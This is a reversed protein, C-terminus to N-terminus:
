PPGSYSVSVNKPVIHPTPSRFSSARAAASALLYPISVIEQPAVMAHAISALDRPNSSSWPRPRAQPSPRATMRAMSAM